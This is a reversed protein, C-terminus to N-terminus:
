LMKKIDFKEYVRATISGACSKDRDLKQTEFTIVKFSAKALYRSATDGAPRSEVVIIDANSFSM